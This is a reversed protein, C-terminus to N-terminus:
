EEEEIADTRPPPSAGKGAAGAAPPVRGASFPGRHVPVFRLKERPAEGAPAATAPRPDADTEITQVSAKRAKVGSHGAVSGGTASSGPTHQRDRPKAADPIVITVGDPLDDPSRLVKRNAEYIERYRASSGLYRSALGSLTDGAQIVHTRGTSGPMVPPAPRLVDGPKKPEPGAPGAPEWERNHAPVADSAVAADKERVPPIPDPAAGPGRSGTERIRPDDDKATFGPADGNDSQPKSKASANQPAPVPAAHDPFDEVGNMYPGRAKEGIRRDLEEANQLPPPTDKDPSEPERRFFLAGVIGILAVGVAMGVKMDRQM